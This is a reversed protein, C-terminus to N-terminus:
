WRKALLLDQDRVDLWRQQNSTREKKWFPASTKLIDMIFQSADFAASRHQSSVGVMVIQEGLLLEGVRHIITVHQLPWRSLAQSGIDALCQETMGPYHELTLGIVESDLNMDRVKGVFTVIAGSQSGQSLQQYEDALVFDDYQVRVTLTV